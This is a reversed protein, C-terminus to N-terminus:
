VPVFVIGGFLDRCRKLIRALVQHKDDRVLAFSHVRIRKRIRKQRLVNQAARAPADEDDPRKHILYVKSLQMRSCFQRQHLVQRRALWGLCPSSTAHPLNCIGKANSGRLLAIFTDVSFPPIETASVIVERSTSPTVTRSRLPRIVRPSPLTCNRSATRSRILLPEFVMRSFM